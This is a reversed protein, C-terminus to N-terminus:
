GKANSKEETYWCWLTVKPPVYYSDSHSPPADKIHPDSPKAGPQMFQGKPHHHRDAADMVTRIHAVWEPHASRMARRLTFRKVNIRTRWIRYCQPVSLVTPIPLSGAAVEHPEFVIAKGGQTIPKSKVFHHHYQTEHRLEDRLEREQPAM